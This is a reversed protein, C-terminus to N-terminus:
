SSPSGVTAGKKEPMRVLGKARMRRYLRVNRQHEDFSSSFRHGGRGDAVFYIFSHAVPYLAAKISARGPSNVPGPPLGAHLYTNYPSERKLDSYYVRRPGDELLYQITPDADLKMGRKLRNYYAGAIIPREDDLVAEGEVISAMTLVENMTKRMVAMRAKLSDDFFRQFEGVLRRLVQQEEEGYTFRYSDPLLYGELSNAEVGLSQVFAPDRALSVFRTSDIGVAHVLLSAQARVTLGEPITVTTETNGEGGLLKRYLASNSIGDPIMYRGMQLRNTGGYVKAVFVFKDRSRIIGRCALTDVIAAFTEGRRILITREGASPNSGFFIDIVWAGVGALIAVVCAALVLSRRRMGTEEKHDGM